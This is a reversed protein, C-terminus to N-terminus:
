HDHEGCMQSVDGSVTPLLQSDRLCAKENLDLISDNLLQMAGKHDTEPGKSKELERSDEM